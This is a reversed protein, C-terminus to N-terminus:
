QNDETKQWNWSSMMVATGTSSTEGDVDDERGIGEFSNVVARSILVM